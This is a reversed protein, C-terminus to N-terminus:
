GSHLTVPAALVAAGTEVDEGRVEWGIVLVAGILEM